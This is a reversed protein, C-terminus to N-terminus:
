SIVDNRIGQIIDSIKKYQEKTIQVSSTSKDIILLTGDDTEKYIPEAYTYTIKVPEYCKELLKTKNYLAEFNKDEKYVELLQTIDNLILKQEGIRNIIDLKNQSNELNIAIYLTEIWAGFAILVAVSARKQEKLFNKMRDFGSNTIFLISDSNEANESLHELIEKDFFQEVMLDQALQTIKELYDLSSNTYNYTNIYILDAGYVGLNLSKKFDNQYKKINDTANLINPSYPMNLKKLLLAMELPNPISNIKEISMVEEAIKDKDVFTSDAFSEDGLNDTQKSQCHVLFLLILLILDKSLLRIKKM